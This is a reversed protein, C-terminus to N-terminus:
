ELISADFGEASMKQKVASPPVGFQVMKFYKKYRQDECAKIGEPEPKEDVVTDQKTEPVNGSDPIDKSHEGTNNTVCEPVPTPAAVARVPALAEIGPISNLKSEVIVLSAEVTQIKREVEIFKAECENAFKNLFKTTQILFHNVFALIRKKQIPPIQKKDIDLM